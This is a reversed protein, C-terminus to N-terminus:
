AQEGDKQESLNDRYTQHSLGGFDTRQSEEDTSDPYGALYGLLLKAREQVSFFEPLEEGAAAVEAAVESLGRMIKGAERSKATEGWGVYIRIKEQLRNLGEAPREAVIQFMANGMLQPPLAKRSDFNNRVEFCYRKHLRDAQKLLCGLAYAQGKMYHDKRNGIKYLLISLLMTAALVKKMGKESFPQVQYLTQCAGADILLGESLRLLIELFKTLFDREDKRVKPFMLRYIQSPQFAASGSDRIRSAVAKPNPVGGGSSRYHMRALSLLSKPSPCSLEVAQEEKKHADKVNKMPARFRIHPADSAAELWSECGQRLQDTTYVDTYVLQRRGQDLKEFQWLYVQNSPNTKCVGGLYSLVAGCLSEYVNKKNEYDDCDDADSFLSALREDTAPDDELWVVILRSGDKSPSPVTSWTRDKRDRTVLFNLAAGMLQSERQMIPFALNGQIGYRSLCPIDGNNSYLYTQGLSPLNLEPYSRSMSVGSKGSLASLAFKVEASSDLEDRAATGTQASLALIMAKRTRDDAVTIDDVDLVDFFCLCESIYSGKKPAGVLLKKLIEIDADDASEAHNYASEALSCALKNAEERTRPYRRLLMQIAALDPSDDESVAELEGESWPSLMLKSKKNEAYSPNIDRCDLLKLLELKDARNAQQWEKADVKESQRAALLPPGIKVAPFRDHNGNGHTWLQMKDKNAYPRLFEPKGDQGLYVVINCSGPVSIDPHVPDLQLGQKELTIALKYLDNLM